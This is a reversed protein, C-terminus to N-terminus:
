PAAFFRVSQAELIRWHNLLEQCDHNVSQFEIGQTKGRKLGNM